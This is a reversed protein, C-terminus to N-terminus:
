KQVVTCNELVVIGGIVCNSSSLWSSHQRRSTAGHLDQTFQRKPPFYRRWRWPLFIRSRPVLTLLHSCVTGDTLFVWSNLVPLSPSHAVPSILLSSLPLTQLSPRAPLLGSSTYSRTPPPPPLAPSGLSCQGSGTAEPSLQRAHM